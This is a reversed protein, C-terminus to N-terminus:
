APVAKRARKKFPTTRIADCGNVKCVSGAKKAFRHTHPTLTVEEDDAIHIPTASDDIGTESTTPPAITSVEEVATGGGVGVLRPTAVAVPDSPSILSWGRGLYRKVHYTDAPLLNPLPTGDAKWWQRKETTTDTLRVAVGTSRLITQEQAKLMQMDEATPM